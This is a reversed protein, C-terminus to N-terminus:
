TRRSCIGSTPDLRRIPWPWLDFGTLPYRLGQDEPATCLATAAAATLSGQSVARELFLGLNKM